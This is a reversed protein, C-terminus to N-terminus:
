DLEVIYLVKKGWIKHQLYVTKKLINIYVNTIYMSAIKKDIKLILDSTLIIKQNSKSM